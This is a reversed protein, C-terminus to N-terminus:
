SGALKLNHRKNLYYIVYLFDERELESAIRTDPSDCNYLSNAFENYTGRRFAKVNKGKVPLLEETETSKVCYALKPASDARGRYIAKGIEYTQDVQRPAPASGSSFGGGGGGYGGGGGGSAFAASAFTLVTSFVIAFAVLISSSTQQNHNM